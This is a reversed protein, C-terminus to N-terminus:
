QSQILDHRKPKTRQKIIENFELIQQEFLPHGKIEKPSELTWGYPKLLKKVNTFEDVKENVGEMVFNNMFIWHNVYKWGSEIIRWLKDIIQVEWKGQM